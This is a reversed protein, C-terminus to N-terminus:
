DALTPIPLSLAETRSPRACLLHLTQIIKHGETAKEVVFDAGALSCDAEDDHSLNDTVLIITPPIMLRKIQRLVDIGRGNRLSANLIAIDPKRNLIMATTEVADSSEGVVDLGTIKELRRKLNERFRVDTDALVITM